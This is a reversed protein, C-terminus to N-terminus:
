FECIICNEKNIRNTRNEMRLLIATCFYKWKFPSEVANWKYDKQSWSNEFGRHEYFEYTCTYLHSIVFICRRGAAREIMPYKCGNYRFNQTKVINGSQM